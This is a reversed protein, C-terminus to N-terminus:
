QVQRVECVRSAAVVPRQCEGFLEEKENIRVRYAKPSRVNLIRQIHGHGLLNSILQKVYKEDTSRLQLTRLHRIENEIERRLLKTKSYKSM